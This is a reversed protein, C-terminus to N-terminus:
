QLHRLADDIEGAALGEAAMQRLKFKQVKGGVTTPFSEAFAVYRPVKYHAPSGRCYERVAGATAPAGPRLRIWACVEEGLREDPV